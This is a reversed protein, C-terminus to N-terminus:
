RFNAHLSKKTDLNCCNQFSFIYISTISFDINLEFSLDFWPTSLTILVIIHAHTHTHTYIFSPYFLLSNSVETLKADAANQASSSSPADESIAGNGSDIRIEQNENRELSRFIDVLLDPKTHDNVSSSDLKFV